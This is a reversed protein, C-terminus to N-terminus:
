VTSYHLPHHHPHASSSSSICSCTLVIMTSTYYITVNSRIRLIEGASTGGFFGGSSPMVFAFCTYTGIDSTKGPNFIHPLIYASGDQSHDGPVGGPPNSFYLSVIPTGVLREVVGDLRCIITFNKGATPAGPIIIDLIFLNNSLEVFLM